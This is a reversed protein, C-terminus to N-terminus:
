AAPMTLLLGAGYALGRGIGRVVAHRYAAGDVITATGGYRQTAMVWRPGAAPQGGPHHKSPFQVTVPDDIILTDDRLQLGAAEAKTTWWNTQNRVGNVARRRGNTTVTPNARIQYRIEGAAPIKWRRTVPPVSLDIASRWYDCANQTFDPAKDSQLRLMLTGNPRLSAAFLINLARRHDPHGRGIGTFFDYRELLHAFGSMTLRHALHGDVMAARTAPHEIDLALVTTLVEMSATAPASMLSITPEMPDTTAV